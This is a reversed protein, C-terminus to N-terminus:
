GIEAMSLSCTGCILRTAPKAWANLGCATCTYKTKNRSQLVQPDQDLEATVRIGRHSTLFRNSQWTLRFGTALLTESVADFRGGPLIYHTMAYGTRKGGPAGTNSPMLGLSEMKNAWQRNHYGRSPKGFKFQWLHVIEHVLTSLIDKDSRGAFIDPNLAIEDTTERDRLRNKFHAPWYYGRARAKRQLTILCSPLQGDFLQANYWEYAQVWGSYEVTTIHM